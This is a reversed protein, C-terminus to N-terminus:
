FTCEKTKGHFFTKTVTQCINLFSIAYVIVFQGYKFSNWKINTEHKFHFQMAFLM